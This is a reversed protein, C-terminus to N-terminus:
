DDGFVAEQAFEYGEWNDVGAARLADLFKQDQLLEDYEDQTITVSKIEM